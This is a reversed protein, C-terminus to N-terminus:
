FHAKGILLEFGESLGYKWDNGDNNVGLLVAFNLKNDELGGGGM